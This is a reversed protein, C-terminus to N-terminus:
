GVKCPRRSKEATSSSCISQVRKVIKLLVVHILGAFSQQRYLWSTDVTQEGIRHKVTRHMVPQINCWGHRGAGCIIMKPLFLVMAQLLMITFVHVHVSRHPLVLLLTMAITFCYQAPAVLVSLHVSTIGALSMAKAVHRRVRENQLNSALKMEINIRTELDRVGGNSRLM